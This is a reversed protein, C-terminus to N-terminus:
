QFLRTINAANANQQSQVFSGVQSMLNERSFNMSEQAFDVDRINSEAAATNVQTISTSQIISAQENQASGLESRVEHIGKMSSEISELAKALGEETTVDIEGLFDNVNGTEFNKFDNSGDLLNSGNYSTSSVIQQSSQLLGDIEKQIAARNEDNMTGNSAKLTLVRIQDMNDSIGSMAGDAIQIMGITDNANMISQGMGSVQASLQDAITLGSADNAAHTLQSGSSLSELTNDLRQNNLNLNLTTASANNNISFSM